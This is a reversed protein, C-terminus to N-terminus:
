RALRLSDSSLAYGGGAAVRATITLSEQDRLAKPISLTRSGPGVIGVLREPGTAGRALIRARVPVTSRFADRASLSIRLRHGPLSAARLDLLVRRRTSLAITAHGPQSGPSVRMLYVGTRPARVAGRPSAFPLSRVWNGEMDPALVEVRARDPDRQTIRLLDGAGLRIEYLREGASSDVAVAGNGSVREPSPAAFAASAACAGLALLVAAISRM